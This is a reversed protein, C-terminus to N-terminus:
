AVAAHIVNARGLALDLEGSTFIAVIECGEPRKARLKRRGDEAGDAAELLLKVRGAALADATKEYGAVVLGAKNALALYQRAEQRMLSELRAPLGPDVRCKAKFAKAFRNEAIARELIKRDAALWVGRGPLKQQLDPVVENDPGLVFRILDAKDHEEGSVICKRSSLAPDEPTNLIDILKRGGDDDSDRGARGAARDM